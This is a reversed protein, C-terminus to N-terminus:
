QKYIPREIGCFKPISYFLSTVYVSRPQRKWGCAGVFYGIMAPRGNEASDQVM